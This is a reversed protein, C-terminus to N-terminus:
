ARPPEKTLVRDREDSGPRRMYAALLRAELTWSWPLGFALGLHFSLISLPVMTVHYGTAPKGSLVVAMLRAYWPSVRYWTPLKEAWGHPGEIEIEVLAFLLAYAFLLLSSCLGSTLAAALEHM